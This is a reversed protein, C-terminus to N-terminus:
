RQENLINRSLPLSNQSTQSLADLSAAPALGPNSSSNFSAPSNNLDSPSPFRSQPTSLPPDASKRMLDKIKKYAKQTHAWKNLGDYKKISKMLDKTAREKAELLSDYRKQLESLEEQTDVLREVILANEVNTQM